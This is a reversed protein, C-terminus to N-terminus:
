RQSGPPNVHVKDHLETLLKDLPAVPPESPGTGTAADLQTVQRIRALMPLPIPQGFHQLMLAALLGGLYDPDDPQGPGALARRPRIANRVVSWATDQDKWWLPPDFFGLWYGRQWCARVLLSYLPLMLAAIGVVAAIVLTPRMNALQGGRVFHLTGVLGVTAAAAFIAFWTTLLAQVPAGEPSGWPVRERLLSPVVILFVPILFDFGIAARDAWGGVRGINLLSLDGNTALFVVSVPVAALFAGFLALGLSIKVGQLVNNAKRSSFAIILSIAVLEAPREGIFRLIDDIINM